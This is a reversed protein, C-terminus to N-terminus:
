GLGGLSSGGREAGAPVRRGNLREGALGMRLGGERVESAEKGRRRLPRDGEEARFWLGPKKGRARAGM